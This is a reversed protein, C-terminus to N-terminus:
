GTMTATFSCCCCFWASVDWNMDDDKTVSVFDKGFFVRTVGDIQFLKKALPSRRVEESSPTFDQREDDDLYTVGHEWPRM